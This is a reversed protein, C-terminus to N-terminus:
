YFIACTHYKGSSLQVLTSSVNKVLFYAIDHFGIWNWRLTEKLIGKRAKEYM